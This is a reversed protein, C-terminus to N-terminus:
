KIENLEKNLEKLEQNSRLTELVLLDLSGPVLSGLNRILATITKKNRM